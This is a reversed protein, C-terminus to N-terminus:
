TFNKLRRKLIERRNKDLLSISVRIGPKGGFIELPVTAIGYCLLKKCIDGGHTYDPHEFCMYLTARENSKYIRKFNAERFVHEVFELRERYEERLNDLYKRMIPNNENLMKLAMYLTRQASQSVSAVTGHIYKGLFRLTNEGRIKKESLEKSIKIIGIREGAYSFLKSASMILINDNTHKTITPFFPEVGPYTYDTDYVMLFYALDEIAIGNYKNILFAIDRLVDDKFFMGTPNNPNSFLVASENYKLIDELKNLWESDGFDVNLYELGIIKAQLKNVSFGPDLFVVKKDLEKVIQLALYSAHMAGVTSFVLNKDMEYDDINLFLKLTKLTESKVENLGIFPAYMNHYSDCMDKQFDVLEQPAKLSPIGICLNIFGNEFVDDFNDQTIVDSIDRISPYEVEKLDVGYKKFRKNLEDFSLM